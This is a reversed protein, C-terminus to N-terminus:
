VALVATKLSSSSNRKASHQVRVHAILGSWSGNAFPAGIMVVIVSTTRSFYPSAARRTISPPLAVQPQPGLPRDQQSGIM